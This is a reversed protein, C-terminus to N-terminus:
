DHSHLFADVFGGFALIQLVELNRFVPFTAHGSLAHFCCTGEGVGQGPCGKLQSNMQVM